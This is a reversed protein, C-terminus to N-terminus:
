CLLSLVCCNFNGSYLFVRNKDEMNYRSFGSGYVSADPLVTAPTMTVLGFKKTLKARRGCLDYPSNLVPAWSTWRSKWVAGSSQLTTKKKNLTAKRGCPGYPSNPVPALSTWRKKWMAGSSQNFWLSNLSIQTSGQDSLDLCLLNLVVSNLLVFCLM